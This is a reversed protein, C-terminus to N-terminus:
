WLIGDKALATKLKRRLRCLANDISKPEKGLMDAIEGVSRGAAYLSFVKGEFNSLQRHINDELQRTSEKDILVDEPNSNRGSGRDFNSGKAKDEPNEEGEFLSEFPLSENLPRNKKRKSLKVATCMQRTICLRAYMVFSDNKNGDFSGIAKFLGIMGEQILDERDGGVLFFANAKGRVLYKYRDMMM